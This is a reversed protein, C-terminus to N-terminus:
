NSRLHNQAHILVSRSLLVHVTVVESCKYKFVCTINGDDCDIPQGTECM